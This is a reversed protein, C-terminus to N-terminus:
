PPLRSPRSDVPALRPFCLLHLGHQAQIGASCLTVTLAALRWSDALLIQSALLLEPFAAVPRVSSSIDNVISLARGTIYLISLQRTSFQCAPVFAGSAFSSSTQPPPPVWGSASPCTGSISSTSKKAATTCCRTCRLSLSQPRAWLCGLCQSSRTTGSSSSASSIRTVTQPIAAASGHYFTGATTLSGRGSSQPLLLERECSVVIQLHELGRARLRRGVRRRM